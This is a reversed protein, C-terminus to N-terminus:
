RAAARRLLAAVKPTAEEMLSTLGRGAHPSAGLELLVKVVPGCGAGVARELATGGFRPDPVDPDAGAEVLREAVRPLCRAAATRLLPTADLRAAPGSGELGHELLLTAAREDPNEEVATRLAADLPRQGFFAQTAPATGDGAADGESWSLSVGAEELAALLRRLLRPRYGTRAADELLVALEVVPPPSSAPAEGLWTDLEELASAEGRRRLSGRLEELSARPPGEAAPGAASTRGQSGGTLVLQARVRPGVRALVYELGRGARPDAGLELLRLVTNEHGGDAARDLAVSGFRPDRANIDAGCEQVLREAFRAMGQAAAARLLPGANLQAVSGEGSGLGLDLLLMTGREDRSEGVAAQLAADLAFRGMNDRCDRGPPWDLGVGLRELAAAAARLMAPQQGRRAADELLLQLEGRSLPRSPRGNEGWAELAIVAMLEDGRQVQARLEQFAVGAQKEM